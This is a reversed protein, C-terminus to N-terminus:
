GWPQYGSKEGEKGRLRSVRVRSIGAAAKGEEEEEEAVRRSRFSLSSFFSPLYGGGRARSSVVVLPQNIQPVLHLTPGVVDTATSSTYASEYFSLTNHQIKIRKGPIFACKFPFLPINPKKKKQGIESTTNAIRAPKM